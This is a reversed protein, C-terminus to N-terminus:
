KHPMFKTPFYLLKPNGRIQYLCKKDTKLEKESWSKVKATILSFFTSTSM